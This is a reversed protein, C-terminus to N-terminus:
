TRNGQCRYRSTHRDSIAPPTFARKIKRLAKKWFETARGRHILASLADVKDGNLLIDMKVIDAEVTVLLHIILHHMAVHRARLNTMFILYLKLSPCKLFLNLVLNM